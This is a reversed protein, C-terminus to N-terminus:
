YGERELLDALVERGRDLGRKHCGLAGAGSYYWSSVPYTKEQVAQLVGAIFAMRQREHRTHGNRDLKRTRSM